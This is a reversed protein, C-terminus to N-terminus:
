RVAEGVNWFRKAPLGLFYISIPASFKSQTGRSLKVGTAIFNDPSRRHFQRAFPSSITALIPHLQQGFPIFNNRSHRPHQRELRFFTRLIRVEAEFNM